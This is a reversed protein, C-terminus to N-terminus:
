KRTFSNAEMWEWDDTLPALVNQWANTIPTGSQVARRTAILYSIHVALKDGFVFFGTERWDDGTAGETGCKLCGKICVVVEVLNPGQVDCVCRFNHRKVFNHHLPDGVKMSSVLQNYNHQSNNTTMM